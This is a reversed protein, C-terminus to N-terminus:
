IAVVAALAKGFRMGASDDVGTVVAGDREVQNGTYRAGAGELEDSLASAGTVRKKRVVQARALVAVSEGWAALLKGADAAERALRLVDPDQALEAAGPGGVFIVGSYAGMSEGSLSGDVQFEDQLRGEILGEEVTSVTRTGVSVNYLCSRSYRLTEESFSSPPVVILVTSLYTQLPIGYEDVEVDSSESEQKAM